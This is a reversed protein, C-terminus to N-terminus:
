PVGVVVVLQADDEVDGVVLTEGIDIVDFFGELWDADNKPYTGSQARAM